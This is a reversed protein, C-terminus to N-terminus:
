IILMACSRGLNEVTVCSEWARCERDLRNRVGSVRCDFLAWIEETQSSPYLSNAPDNM